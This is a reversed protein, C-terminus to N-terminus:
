RYNTFNIPFDFDQKKVLAMISQLEDKSGSSVRVTEGQIQPKAKPFEDRIIKTIKKAKDQDLGSQFPVTWRMVMGAQEPNNAKTDLLKQSIGRKALKGRVMDLVAQLQYDSDGEITLGSNKDDSYELKAPTGKFDYRNLLEKRSQDVAHDLESKDFESVIDFSFTRAM